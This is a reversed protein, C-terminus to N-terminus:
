VKVEDDSDKDLDSSVDESRRMREIRSRLREARKQSPMLQTGFSIQLLDYLSQSSKAPPCWSMAIAM